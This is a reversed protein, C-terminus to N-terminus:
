VEDTKEKPKSESELEKLEKEIENVEDTLDKQDAMLNSVQEIIALLTKDKKGQFREVIKQRKAQLESSKQSTPM